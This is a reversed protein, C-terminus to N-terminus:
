DNDGRPKIISNPLSDVEQLDYKAIGGDEAFTFSGLVKKGALVKPLWYSDDVWMQSYPIDTIPFEQPKMEETEKPEGRYLNTKFVHVQQDWDKPKNTFYFDFIGVLELNDKSLRIGTEEETERCVCDMLEENDQPKGGFGNYKGQGFGRKKMGLLIKNNRTIVTLTVKRLDDKKTM